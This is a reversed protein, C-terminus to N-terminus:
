DYTRKRARRPPRPMTPAAGFAVRFRDLLLHAAPSALGGARSFLGIQGSDEPTECAVQGLLGQAIQEAVAERPLITLVDSDLTLRRILTVSDTRMIQTPVAMDHRRFFGAFGRQVAESDLLVWRARALDAVTVTALGALPHGARAIVMSHHAQLPEIVIGEEQVLTGIIGFGFDLAELRVQEVLEMCGGTRVSVSMDPRDRALGALIDPVLYSAYNQTIGFHVSGTRAEEIARVEEIARAMENLIVKARRILSKGYITPVVGNPRREFLPVGLKTELSKISRSLGSQTIFSDDAARLLNHHEAAALFHRLQQIEM